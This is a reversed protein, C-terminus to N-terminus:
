ADKYNERDSIRIEENLCKSVERRLFQFFNLM